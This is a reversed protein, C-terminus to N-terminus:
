YTLIKEIIINKSITFTYGYDLEVKLPAVYADVGSNILEIDQEGDNNLDDPDGDGDLDEELTCRILDESKALAFGSGKRLTVMFRTPDGPIEKGNCKLPMGSLSASVIITNFFEKYDLEGSTCAKVFENVNIIEGNGANKVHILFHPKILKIINDNQQPLIRTEVKTVSVPAGQGDSFALDKVACAKQRKEQGIIDPDICVSTGLVTNYPYCATVFITSPHTESQVGIRKAEANITIFDEDGLPSYISKGEIEREQREKVNKLANSLRQKYEEPKTPNLRTKVIVKDALDAIQKSPLNKLEDSSVRQLIISPLKEQLDNLSKEENTLKNVITDSLGELDGPNLDNLKEVFSVYAKEFGFVIIGKEIEPTEKDETIDFAGANKIKLSISFGSEAFVNGPPANPLFEMILGETGKRVDVDTIPRQDKKSGDCGVVALLFLIGMILILNRSMCFRCEKKKM